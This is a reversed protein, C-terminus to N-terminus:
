DSCTGDECAPTLEIKDFGAITLQSKGDSQANFLQLLAPRLNPSGWFGHPLCGSGSWQGTVGHALTAVHHGSMLAAPCEQGQRPNASTVESGRLMISFMVHQGDVEDVPESMAEVAGPMDKAFVWRQRHADYVPHWPTIGLGSPLRCYPFPKPHVVRVVMEVVAGQALVDGPLLAQVDVRSGDALDVQTGWVVCGGVPNTAAEGDAVATGEGRTHTHTTAQMAAFFVTAWQVLSPTSWFRAAVDLHNSPTQARLSELLGPLYTRGWSEYAVYTGYRDKTTLAPLLQQWLDRHLDPDVGAVDRENCFAVVKEKAAFMGAGGDRVMRQVDELMATASALLHAREVFERVHPKRMYEAARESSILQRLTVVVEIPEGTTALRGGLTMLPTDLSMVERDTERATRELNLMLTHRASERVPGLLYVREDVEQRFSHTVCPHQSFYVGLHRLPVRLETHTVCTTLTSAILYAWVGPNLDATTAATYMGGNARAIAVLTKVDMNAGREFSMTHVVAPRTLRAQMAAIAAAYDNNPPLNRNPLGDTLVVVVPLEDPQLHRRVHDFACEIGGLMNTMGGAQLQDLLAELRKRNAKHLDMPAPTILSGKDNFEVLSVRVSLPLSKALGRLGLTVMDLVYMSYTVGALRLQTNMSISTDIVCVLHVKHSTPSVAQSQYVMLLQHANRPLLGASLGPASSPFERAAVLQADTDQQRAICAINSM